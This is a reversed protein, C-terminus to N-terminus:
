DYPAERAHDVAEQAGRRWPEGHGTLVLPADLSRFADLSALARRMNNTAAPAIVRPGRRGTYPDLTVLADGSFLIGAEPLLFGVHGDTHGPSLIPVPNGPAAVPEGAILEPRAEVGRTWLAGAGLMRGLMPLGGPHKLQFPLRPAEHAYSFPHQALRVDGPHVLIPVHHDRQLRYAMGVHDFHAHTLLVASIDSPHAGLARLLSTLLPWTRPLGSDILTLGEDTKVLYCNTYAVRLQFIGPQVQVGRKKGENMQETQRRCLHPSLRNCDILRYVYHGGQSSGLRELPAWPAVIPQCALGGGKTDTASM